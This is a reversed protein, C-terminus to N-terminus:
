FQREYGQPNFHRSDKKLWYTKASKETKLSLLDKGFLRMVLGIPTCILYFIVTLIIRSNIWGLVFGVKMWSIYILRLAKPAVFAMLIFLSSVFCFPLPNHKHKLAVLLTIIAFCASMTIGFKKLSDKSLNLKEM